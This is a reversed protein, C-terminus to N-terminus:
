VTGWFSLQQKSVELQQRVYDDLIGCLDNTREVRHRGYEKRLSDSVHKFTERCDSETRKADALDELATDVKDQRISSSTRLREIAQMKKQTNKCSGEYSVLSKLRNNLSTQAGFNSRLFLLCQDNFVSQRYQIDNALVEDDVAFCKAIKRFSVGVSPIQDLGVDALKSSVDLSSRCIDRSILAIKENIRGIASFYAEYASVEQKADEFFVDIEKTEQTQSFSFLSRQQTVHRPVTPSQPPAFVFESEIFSRTGDVIRLHEHKSLRYLFRELTTRVFELNTSKPPPAPGIYESNTHMLHLHLRNFEALTRTLSYNRRLYQPLNTSVVLLASIDAGNDTPRVLQVTVELFPESEVTQFDDM